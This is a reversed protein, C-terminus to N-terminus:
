APCPPQQRNGSPHLWTGAGIMQSSLYYLNDPIDLNCSVNCRPLYTRPPWRLAKVATNRPDARIQYWAVTKPGLINPHRMLEIFVAPVLYGLLLKLD